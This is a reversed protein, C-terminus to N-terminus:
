RYCSKQPLLAFRCRICYVKVSLFYSRKFQRLRSKFIVEDKMHEKMIRWMVSRNARNLEGDTVAGDRIGLIRSIDKGMSQDNTRSNEFSRAIEENAKLIGEPYEYDKYYKKFLKALFKSFTFKKTNKKLDSEKMIHESELEDLKWRKRGKKNASRIQDVIEESGGHDKHEHSNDIFSDERKGLRDEGVEITEKKPVM